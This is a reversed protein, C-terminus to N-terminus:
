LLNGGTIRFYMIHMLSVGLAIGLAVMLADLFRVGGGIYNGEAFDRIANVMSVGPVLPMISGVLIVGPVNGIGIHYFFVSFFSVSFGAVLNIVIKSTTKERKEFIFIVVYLLLGSLFAAFMDEATGGFLYCFAGSGVGSAFMRSMKSKELEKKIEEIRNEAEELTCRGEVIERSLQNVAAIRHLKAGQIPIHKVSAYMEGNGNEATLFIGTSMVFPSCKEIGFAMAIRKITEEVRFIEAGADLLIRGAEMSLDLVKKDENEM